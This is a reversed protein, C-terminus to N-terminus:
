DSTTCLTADPKSQSTKELKLMNVAVHLARCFDDVNDPSILLDVQLTACNEDFTRLKFVPEDDSDVAEIEIPYIKFM